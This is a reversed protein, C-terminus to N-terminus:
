PTTNSQLCAIYERKFEQPESVSFVLIPQSVFVDQDLDIEVIKIDKTIWQNPIFGISMTKSSIAEVMQEPGPAILLNPSVEDTNLILRDFIERLEHNEPYTWISLDSNSSTYLNRITNYNLLGPNDAPNSVMILDLVGVQYMFDAKNERNISTSVMLDVQNMNLSGQPAIELLIVAETSIQECHKLQESLINKLTPTIGVTIIQPAPPPPEIIFERCATISFILLFVGFYFIQKKM